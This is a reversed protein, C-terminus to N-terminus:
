DVKTSQLYINIITQYMDLFEKKKEASWSNNVDLNVKIINVESNYKNKIIREWDFPNDENKIGTSVSWFILATPNNENHITETIPVISKFISNLNINSDLNYNNTQFSTLLLTNNVCKVGEYLKIKFGNPNFLWVENLKGLKQLLLNLMTDKAIFNNQENLKNNFIINLISDNNFVIPKQPIKVYFENASTEQAKLTNIIIFSFTALTLIVKKM